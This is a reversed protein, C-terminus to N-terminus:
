YAYTHMRLLVSQSEDADASKGTHTKFSEQDSEQDHHTKVCTVCTLIIRLLDRLIIKKFFIFFFFFSM